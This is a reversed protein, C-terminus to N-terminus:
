EPMTLNFAQAVKSARVKFDAVFDNPNAGDHADQLLNLFRRARYLDEDPLLEKILKVSLDNAGNGEKIQYKKILANTLIHGIACRAGNLARYVFRWTDTDFSPYGQKIVGLVARSFLDQM